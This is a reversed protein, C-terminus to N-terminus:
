LGCWKRAMAKAHTQNTPSMPPLWGHELSWRDVVYKDEHRWIQAKLRGGRAFGIFWVRRM